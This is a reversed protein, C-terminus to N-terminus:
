LYYYYYYYNATHHRMGTSGAVRSASTPPDLALLSCHATIVGNRALRPLLTVGEKWRAANTHLNSSITNPIHFANLILFSSNIIAGEYGTAERILVTIGASQSASTPQNRPALLELGAQGVHCFGMEVLFVFILQAHHYVGTIGAAQSASSCSESSGPFCLSCHASIMGSCELRPTLTLSDPEQFKYIRQLEDRSFYLFNAPCPSMSRYDWSSPLSLCSFRKFGPPQLNCPASTTGRWKLRIISCSDMQLGLVKPPWPPHIVLGPTGSCGPWYPSVRDRSFICFNAPRPPTHRYNWSRPLTLCFFRKFGPSPPQLSGLDLWQVGTQAVSGSETKSESQTESFDWMITPGDYTCVLMVQLKQTLDGDLERRYVVLEVLAPVEKQECSNGWCGESGGGAIPMPCHGNPPLIELNEKSPVLRPVVALVVPTALAPRPSCLVSATGTRTTKCVRKAERVRKHRKAHQLELKKSPRPPLTAQPWSSSVLRAMVAFGRSASGASNSSGPLYLNCHASIESSCDLRPSLALSGWGRLNM